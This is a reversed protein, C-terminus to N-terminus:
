FSFTTRVTGILLDDADEITSDPETIWVVGPTISVHDNVQYQYFAEVHLARDSDAPINKITSNTVTPESGVVIGALNGEKGLDPLAITATWDWIDQTGRDIAQDLSDLNSVKSLGGRGGLVLSPNITWSIELGYSSNVTPLEEGFLATSFSQLNALNTGTETDSQDFSHVYTAALSVSQIPTVILQGLLSYSGAFLGNGSSPDDASSALYGANLKIQQSPSYAIGLGADGPPYYIPNRTGFTSIAGTGGDGDLLSITPAIDDGALGVAGLIFEWRDGLNFSYYLTDLRLDNNTNEAFALDGEFTGVEESFGPFGSSSLRTFLLDKGQFSTTLELRLRNGIVTSENDNGALISGTAFIAEGTLKSTTAFQTAELDQLRAQVADSRGKLIALDSQFEQMLRLILEVDEHPINQAQAIINELRNLCSNLEVAFDARSINHRDSNNSSESAVCGYREGLDQLAQYSWDAVSIATPYKVPNSQAVLNNFDPNAVQPNNILNAAFDLQRNILQTNAKSHWNLDRDGKPSIAQVETGLLLALCIINLSTIQNIRRGCNFM